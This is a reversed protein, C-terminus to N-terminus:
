SSTTQNTHVIPYLHIGGMPCVSAHAHAIVSHSKPLDAPPHPVNRGSVSQSGGLAYLAPRCQKTGVPVLADRAISERCERAPSECEAAERSSGIAISANNDSVISDDLTDAFLAERSTRLANGTVATIEEAL